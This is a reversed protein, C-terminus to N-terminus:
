YFCRPGQGAGHGGVEVDVRTKLEELERMQTEAERLYSRLGDENLDSPDQNLVAHGVSQDAMELLGVIQKIRKCIAMARAADPSTKAEIVAERRTVAEPGEGAEGDFFLRM